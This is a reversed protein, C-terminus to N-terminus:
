EMMGQIEETKTNSHILIALLTTYIFKPIVLSLPLGLFLHCFSTLSSPLITPPSLYCSFTCLLSSHFFSKLIALFRRKRCMDISHVFSHVLIECLVFRAFAIGFQCSEVLVVDNQLLKLAPGM